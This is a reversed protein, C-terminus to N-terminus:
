LKQLEELSAQYGTEKLYSLWAKVQRIDAADNTLFAKFLKRFRPDNKSTTTKAEKKLLDLNDPLDFDKLRLGLGEAIKLIFAEMAPVIQIFYHHRTAHKYLTVSGSVVVINFEKLYDLEKKDKDIIGLAFSDKLKTQMVKGVTGCGKQHNYGMKPKVLTEAMNTDVFCEPIVCYDM